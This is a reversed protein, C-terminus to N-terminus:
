RIKVKQLQAKLQMLILNVRTPFVVLAERNLNTTLYM